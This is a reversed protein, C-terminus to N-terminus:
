KTVSKIFREVALSAPSTKEKLSELSGFHTERKLLLLEAKLKEQKLHQVFEASQNVDVLEDQESHIVLWPAKNKFTLLTPSASKWKDSGGFEKSIFQDKYGPWKTVLAPIDYIGEIGIFGKVVKNDYLTAWYAIMHAGASHGMLILRDHDCSESKSSKLQKLSAQLDEIQGPHQTGPALRYEIVVTCYGRTNLIEALELYESARGSVWAGGHVFVLTPKAKAAFSQASSFCLLFIALLKLLRLKVM